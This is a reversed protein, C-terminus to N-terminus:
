APPDVLIAPVPRLICTRRPRSSARTPAATWCSARGPSSGAQESCLFASAAGLESPKGFRQAPIAKQDREAVEARTLGLSAAAVEQGTRLRRTDFSGPLLFNITVAHEVSRAVGALFGTLGVRAGSSPGPRSRCKVSASTINVIKGFRRDMMGDIVKQVLLIPPPMNTAVGAFLAREDIQRFDKLPPAGNNNVLIDM